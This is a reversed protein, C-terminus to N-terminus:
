LSSDVGRRGSESPVASPDESENVEDAPVRDAPRVTPLGLWAISVIVCIAGAAAFAWDYGVKDVIVGAAIPGSITGADQVMQYTAMVKGGSREKGIVDAVVAQQAPNLIGGGMGAIVSLAIFLWPDHVLGLTGVTVGTVLFGVVILPKRGVSDALRGAFLVVAATGVAFCALSIGAIKAGNDFAQAAFLPVIAVRMGFSCWGNAFAGALAGIYRAQRMAEAMLMPEQTDSGPERRRGERLFIAVVATAVILAGAYIFFPLRMGLSGLLGGFVPGAINGILFASAYYSSVRGRADVPALRVLLAAASITFMTSGLGGLGRFILMQWYNQALGTALTSLAVIVLGTLYVKREGLRDILAGGVPAFILRCFAFASVVVTAATVGVNFSTAFQPLVPAVLGFGLAVLLAGAILVWLDAPIPARESSAGSKPTSKRGLAMM